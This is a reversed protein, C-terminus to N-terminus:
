SFSLTFIVSLFLLIVSISLTSSGSCVFKDEAGANVCHTSAECYGFGSCCDADKPICGAGCCIYDEPCSHQPCCVGEEPACAYTENTNPNQCCIEGEACCYKTSNPCVFLTFHSEPCQLADARKMVTSIPQIQTMHACHVFLMFTCFIFINLIVM